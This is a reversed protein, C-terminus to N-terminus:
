MERTHCAPRTQPRLDPDHWSLVLRGIRDAGLPQHTLLAIRKRNSGGSERGVGAKTSIVPPQHGALRLGRQRPLRLRTVGQRLDPLVVHHVRVALRVVAGFETPQPLIAFREATLGYAAAPRFLPCPLPVLVLGPGATEVVDRGMRDAVSFHPHRVVEVQLRNVAFQGQGLVDPEVAQTYHQREHDPLVIRLRELLPQVREERDAVLAPQLDHKASNSSQAKPESSFSFFGVYPRCGSTRSPHYALPQVGLGLGRCPGRGLDVQGRSSFYTLSMMPANLFSEPSDPHPVQIVLRCVATQAIHRNRQGFVQTGSPARYRGTAVM